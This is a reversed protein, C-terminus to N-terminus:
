ASTRAARPGAWSTRSDPDVGIALAPPDNAGDGAMAVIRGEDQLAGLIRLKLEPEVGAYISVESAAVRVASDDLRALDRGFRGPLPTAFWLGAPRLPHWKSANELMAVFLAVGSIEGIDDGSKDICPESRVRSVTLVCVDSSRSPGFAGGVCLRELPLKRVLQRERLVQQRLCRLRFRQLSGLCLLHIRLFLAPLGDPQPFALQRCQSM